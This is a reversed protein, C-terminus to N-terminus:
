GPDQRENAGLYHGTMKEIYRRVENEDRSFIIKRLREVLSRYDLMVQRAVIEQFHHTLPSDRDYLLMFASRPLSAVKVPGVAECTAEHKRGTILSNLGFLGGAQMRKLELNSLQRKMHRYVAVEGEVILYLDTGKSGQTFFEHGDEYDRVDLAQELVALDDDTFASFEPITRLFEGLKM